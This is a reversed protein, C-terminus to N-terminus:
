ATQPREALRHLSARQRAVPVEVVRYMLLGAAVGALSLLAARPALPWSHLTPRLLELIAYHVIYISYSALGIAQIWRAALLGHLREAIAGDALLGYLIVTVTAVGQFTYRLTDRFVHERIGLSLLYLMVSVPVAWDSSVLRRVSRLWTPDAQWRHYALAALAGLAIGDARTDSGGYIRWTEGGSKVALVVRLVNSAVFVGVCLIAINRTTNPRAVLFLWALAFLIYFQEEIALSWVVFSWPAIQGAARLGLAALWNYAFLLQSAFAAPNIYRDPLAAYIITPIIVVLLLSPGIKLARRLYFNSIHFRGTRDRERIMLHVIIFGSISFFITVGSGGPVVKGLGAHSVVVLGVAFARLADIHTFRPRAEM